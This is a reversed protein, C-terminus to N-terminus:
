GVKVKARNFILAALVLIIVTELLCAILTYQLYSTNSILVSRSSNGFVGISFNGSGGPNKVYDFITNPLLAGNLFPIAQFYLKFGLRFALFTYLTLALIWIGFVIGFILSPQRVITGLLIGVSAYSMFLLCVSLIMAPIWTADMQAGFLSISCLYSVMVVIIGMILCVLLKELIKGAFISTRSVPMSFLRSMTGKDFEYAFTDTTMVGGTIVATFGIAISTFIASSSFMWSLPGGSYDQFAGNAYKPILYSFSVSIFIAISVLILTKFRRLDWLAEYRAVAIVSNM